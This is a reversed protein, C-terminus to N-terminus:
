KRRLREMRAELERRRQRFEAERRSWNEELRAMEAELQERTEDVSERLEAAGEKLKEQREEVSEAAWVRVEEMDQRLQAGIHRVQPFANLLRRHAWGRQAIAQRVKAAMEETNDKDLIRNDHRVHTLVVVSVAADATFIALLVGCLAALATDGLHGYLRLLLPNLVYMIGVGLLGFPIMTNLCIRGNINFRRTSYDWWRAHFLKEMLYSIGYELVSCIVVGMVFLAAPDDLYRRLLLTILLAGSGYIPCYPGILFGRNIFRRFQFWKATVEMCWGLVSYSFFLLIYIGIERVM